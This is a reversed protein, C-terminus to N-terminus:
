PSIESSPNGQGAQADLAGLVMVLKHALHDSLIGSLRAGDRASLADLM